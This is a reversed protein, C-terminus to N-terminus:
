RGLGCHFRIKRDLRVPLGARDLLRRISDLQAPSPTDYYLTAAVEPWSSLDARGERAIMEDVDVALMLGAELRTWADSHRALRLGALRTASSTSAVAEDIARKPIRSAHRRLVRAAGRVAAPSTDHLARIASEILVEESAIWRAAQLAARRVAEDEHHLLAVIAPEDIRKGTEGLGLIAVPAPVSVDVFDRYRSAVDCDLETLRRQAARRVTSRRELLLAEEQELVLAAPAQAVALARVVGSGRVFLAAAAEDGRALLARAAILRALPDEDRLACELLLDYDLLDPRAALLLRRTARSGFRALDGVTGRELGRVYEDLFSASREQERIAVLLPVIAMAQRRERRELVASRAKNRVVGVWDATRLAIAKDALADDRGVLIDLAMERVRGDRHFSSVAALLTPCDSGLRRRLQEAAPYVEM